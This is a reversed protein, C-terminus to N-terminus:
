RRAVVRQWFELTRRAIAHDVLENMV